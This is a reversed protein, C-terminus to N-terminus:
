GFMEKMAQHFEPMDMEALAEVDVGQDEGSGGLGQAAERKADLDEQSDTKGDDPKPPTYGITKAYQYAYESPNRNNQMLQAATMFEEGAIHQAIQSDDADPFAMKLQRTRVNRIHALADWYDPNKEAFTQEMASAAQQVAQVQQQQTIQEHTQETAKNAKSLQEEFSRLKDVVTQQTHDIYAKPDDLYDPAQKEPEAEQREEIRSALIQMKELLQKNTGELNDIRAQLKNRAELLTRLPVKEDHGDDDAAKPEEQQKPEEKPPEEEGEAEAPHEGGAEYEEGEAERVRALEDLWDDNQEAEAM